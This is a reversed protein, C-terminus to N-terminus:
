SPALPEIMVQVVHLTRVAVIAVIGNGDAPAVQWLQEVPLYLAHAPWVLQKWQGGPLNWSRSFYPCQWAQSLLRVPWSYPMPKQVNPRWPAILQGAIGVVEGVYGVTGEKSAEWNRGSSPGPWNSFHSSWAARAQVRVRVDEQVAEGRALVV